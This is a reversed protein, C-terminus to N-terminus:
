CPVTRRLISFNPPPLRRLPKSAVAIPLRTWDRTGSPIARRPAIQVSRAARLVQRARHGSVSVTTHGTYVEITLGGDFAAAPVGLVRLARHALPKGDDETYLRAHAECMPHSSVELPATCGEAMGPDCSGYQYSTSHSGTEQVKPQARRCDRQAGTVPLGEFRSSLFYVTYSARPCAFRLHRNRVRFSRKGELGANDVARATVTLWGEPQSLTDFTYETELSCNPTGACRARERQVTRGNIVIEVRVVGSSPAQATGDTAAVVLDWYDGDVTKGRRDWLGGSLKV